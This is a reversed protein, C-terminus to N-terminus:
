LADTSTTDQKKELSNLVSISDVVTDYIEKLQGMHDLYYTYSQQYTTEDIGHKEMLHHEYNNFLLNLSDSDRTGIYSMKAELLHMDILFSVMQPQSLLDDPKEVLESSSNCASVSFIFTLFFLVVKM